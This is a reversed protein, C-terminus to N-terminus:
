RRGRLRDAVACPGKPVVVIHVSYSPRTHHFALVRDTEVVVGSTDARQATKLTSRHSPKRPSPPHHRLTHTPASQRRVVTTKPGHGQSRVLEVGM